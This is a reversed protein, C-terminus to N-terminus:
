GKGLCARTKVQRCYLDKSIVTPFSLNIAVPNSANGHHFLPTVSYSNIGGGDSQCFHAIESFCSGQGRVVHRAQTVKVKLTQGVQVFTEFQM